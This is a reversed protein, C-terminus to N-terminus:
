YNIDKLFEYIEGLNDFNYHSRQEYYGIMIRKSDIFDISFNGKENEPNTSQM